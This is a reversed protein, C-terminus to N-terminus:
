RYDAFLGLVWEIFVELRKPIFERQPYVLWLPRKPSDIHPLIRVLKGEDLEKQVLIAPLHGIGFGALLAQLLATSDNVLIRSPLKVTQVQKKVVFSWPLVKRHQGFFYNIVRHDELEALTQPESFKELYAPAACTVMDIEGLRRAIDSSDALNGLRLTCDLGQDILNHTDDSSTIVLDIEPYAAQFEPLRAMVFPMVAPPMDLRLKGQPLQASGSLDNFTQELEALLNQCKEYFVEGEATLAIKRTTRNLLRSGLQTELYKVAKSVASVHLNLQDASQTFSGTEVVRAYIQLAQIRDM